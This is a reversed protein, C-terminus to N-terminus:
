RDRTGTTLPSSGKCSPTSARFFLTLSVLAARLASLIDDFTLTSPLTRITRMAIRRVLPMYRDYLERDGQGKPASRSPAQSVLSELGLERM